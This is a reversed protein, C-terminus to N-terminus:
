PTLTADTYTQLIYEVPGAPLSGAAGYIGAVGKDKGAKVGETRAREVAKALDQLFADVRSAMPSTVCVHVCAPSQLTSMTWDTMYDQVQYIDIEQPNASAFCVVMYPHPSLLRLGPIDREIGRAMARAATVIRQVQQQYGDRGYYVLAAWACVALAGSRSGALTPTAYMGGTWHPFVFYQGQRLANSRYVVVSTGKTTFGCKHTDASMSTVGGLRFDFVPADGVFPLVFGGLCADVHLGIDFELALQSLESIPDIVGQPYCPASAFIMITNSTIKRRVESAKLVFTFASTKGDDDNVDVVVQRIGYMDCAKDLSAHASSGCIIEPHSIQRRRGYYQLHARVALLISETGGSTLCGVGPKPAHLLDATMAIVEAECQNVKPWSGPHLQNSWAYLAYVDTLLKTSAEDGDTYVTGSVQGKRWGQNETNAHRGLEELIDSCSRGQVPLQLTLTRQPNKHLIEDATSHFSAAIKDSLAQEIGPVHVRAWLFVQSQLANYWETANFHYISYIARWLQVIVLYAVLDELMLGLNTVLQALIWRGPLSSSDLIRSVAQIRYKTLNEVLYQLSSTSGIATAIGAAAETQPSSWCRCRFVFWALLILPTVFPRLGRVSVTAQKKMFSSGACACISLALISLTVVLNM